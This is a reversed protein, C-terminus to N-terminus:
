RFEVGYMLVGAGAALVVAPNGFSTVAIILALAFMGFTAVRWWFNLIKNM